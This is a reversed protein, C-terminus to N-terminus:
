WRSEVQFVTKSKNVNDKLFLQSPSGMWWMAEVRHYIQTDPRVARPAICSVCLLGSSCIYAPALIHGFKTMECTQKIAEPDCHHPLSEIWGINDKSTQPHVTELWRRTSVQVRGALPISCSAHQLSVQLKWRAPFIRQTRIWHVILGGWQQLLRQNDCWSIGYIQLVKKWIPNRESTTSVLRFRLLPM